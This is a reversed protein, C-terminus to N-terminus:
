CRWRRPGPCCTASPSATCRRGARRCPRAAVGHACRWCPSCRASCCSRRASCSGARAPPSCRCGGPGRPAGPAPRAPLFRLVDVQEGIQPMLALIVSAAGGFKLLDFGGGGARCRRARSAADLRPRRALRAVVIFGVPLINLGIWLPQTLLQFRSIWTIGHTVLPIVAVASVLYGLPLPVGFVSSCRRRWSRRKSPSSSSPSPPMSWRRSPRASIASAPAARSCTSTSATARRMSSQDAPRHAFLM